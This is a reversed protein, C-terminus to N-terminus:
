GQTLRQEVTQIVDGVTRLGEAEEDPITIHFANEVEMILEVADLSDMGLDEKLKADLSIQEAAVDLKQVIIQRITEATNEM